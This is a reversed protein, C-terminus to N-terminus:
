ALGLRDATNAWPAAISAGEPDLVERVITLWDVQSTSPCKQKEHSNKPFDHYECWIPPHGKTVFLKSSELDPDALLQFFGKVPPSMLIRTDHDLNLLNLNRRVFANRVKAANAPYVLTIALSALNGALIMDSLVPTVVQDIWGRHRGVELVFTRIRRRASPTVFLQLKGMEQRQEAGLSGRADANEGLVAPVDRTRRSADGHAYIQLMKTQLSGHGSFLLSLRFTNLSYLMPCAIAHLQPHVLLVSRAIALQQDLQGHDSCPCLEIDTDFKLLPTLILSLIDVPLDLLNLPYRERM